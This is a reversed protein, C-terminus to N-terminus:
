DINGVETQQKEACLWNDVAYQMHGTESDVSSSYEGMALNTHRNSCSLSSPIDISHSTTKEAIDADDSRDSSKKSSILEEDAVEM